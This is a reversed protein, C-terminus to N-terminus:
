EEQGDFTPEASYGNRDWTEMIAIIRANKRIGYENEVTVIDGLTYDVDLVYTNATDIEGEFTEIIKSEAMKEIGRAELQATYDADSIKGEESSLDRADVYLERRSMGAGGGVTATKRASGEGEGAVYAFTKFNRADYTYNSSVLSEFEPSFIIPSVSTQSESKDTGSFLEITSTIISHNETVARFGLGYAKCIQQVAELLNEGTYQASITDASINPTDMLLPLARDADEPNIANENILRFIGADVRGSLITQAAIIRRELISEVGRGTITVYDGEDVDTKIEVREIIMVEPRDPRTVYRERQALAMLQPTAPAYIEFDSPTNYRRVWIASEPAEIIGIWVGNSDHVNFDM